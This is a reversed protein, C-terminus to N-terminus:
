FCSKITDIVRKQEEETMKIDSPLCLGREFIDKGVDEGNATIFDYGEFVPQMHMPKWIPRAEINEKALKDMIDMPDVPCGEDILMCSLWFNPKSDKLYPNMTVPLYKFAEEYTRYIEEKKDRHEELHLLQGRGIGAVVNSMRYNYGIEEHQYWPFNERAQTAWFLAKKRDSENECILMGGGSTTIIKNGNFSLVGYKGFTGCKKDKYDAALAEAADEILVAGHRDCIEKIEDMKAPTGYLHALMVAKADPYKKFALELACPDMNWTECESDIFVPVGGEYTVPNVTAAFTMDSCLVKDGRKVGALKVALHLAATGANLCLCSYEGNETLYASMESEFGDCNFGLPAIWNREFAEKIYDNEEGHMTPTALPIRKNEVVM